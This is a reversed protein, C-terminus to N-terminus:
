GRLNGKIKVKLDGYVGIVFDDCLMESNLRKIIAKSLENDKLDVKDGEKSTM